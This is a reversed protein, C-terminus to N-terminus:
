AASGGFIDLANPVPRNMWVVDARASVKANGSSAKLEVREWAGLREDYLESAYGSLMVTARVGVLADLLRDHEARTAMEHSYRSGGRTSGLYPPDVYLLNSEFRGYQEIVEVADRCELSVDKIREAAPLLRERYATMYQSFSASTGSVDAYFRWGTRQLTRSRGQTLLVWVRRAVELDDLDVHFTMAVELEGRSHPTMAAARALELPRERLVRWFTMLRGDIDNAVEVKKAAPKALLVSLSGAFPEVYGEHEPMLAVIRDALNTKGGFYQIPSRTATM